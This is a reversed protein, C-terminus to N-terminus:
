TVFPRVDPCALFSRRYAPEDLSDALRIVIRSASRRHSTAEKERSQSAYLRAMAAHDRWSIAVLQTSSAATIAELYKAEAEQLRGLQELCQGYALNLTPWYLPIRRQEAEILAQEVFQLADTWKGNQEASRVTAVALDAFTIWARAIAGRPERERAAQLWRDGEHTEGSAYSDMALQAEVAHLLFPTHHMCTEHAQSHLSQARETQGIERLLAGLSTPMLTSSMVFGADRGCDIAEELTM